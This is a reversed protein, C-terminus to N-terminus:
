HKQLRLVADYNDDNFVEKEDNVDVILDSNIIDSYPRTSVVDIYTIDTDVVEGDINDFTMSYYVDVDDYVPLLRRVVLTYYYVAKTGEMRYGSPAVYVFSGDDLGARQPEEAKRVTLKYEVRAIDEGNPTYYEDLIDCYKVNNEKFNTVLESGSCFISDHNDTTVVSSPLVMYQSDYKSLGSKVLDSVKTKKAQIAGSYYIGALAMCGALVVGGIKCAKKINDKKRYYYDYDDNGYDLM